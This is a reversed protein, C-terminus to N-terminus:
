GDVGHSVTVQAPRVRFGDARRLLEERMRSHFSCLAQPWTSCIRSRPHPRALIRALGDGVRLANLTRM